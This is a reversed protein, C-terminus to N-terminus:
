VDVGIMIELFTNPINTIENFTYKGTINITQYKEGDFNYLLQYHGFPVFNEIGFYVFIAYKSNKAVKEFQQGDLTCTVKFKYDRLVKIVKIPNSGGIGYVNEGNLDFKYIIDAFNVDRNELKLINYISTPGCGNAGINGFGFNLNEFDSQDYILDDYNLSQWVELNHKHNIEAKVFCVIRSSFILGFIVILFISLVKFKNKRKKVNHNYLFKAWYDFWIKNENLTSKKKNIYYM